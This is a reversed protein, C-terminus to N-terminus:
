IDAGAFGADPAYEIGSSFNTVSGNAADAVSVVSINDGDPDFDNALTFVDVFSGSDTRAVDNRAVPPSAASATEVAPVTLALTPPVALMAAIVVAWHRRVGGRWPRRRISAGSGMMRGDRFEYRVTERFQTM